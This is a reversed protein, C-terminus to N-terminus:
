LYEIEWTPHYFGSEKEDDLKIELHGGRAGIITGLLVVGPNGTYKIRGNKEAPVGYMEKIYDLSM